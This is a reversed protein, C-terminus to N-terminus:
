VQVARGPGPVANGRACRTRSTTSRRQQKLQVLASKTRALDERLADIQHEAANHLRALEAAGKREAELQDQLARAVKDTAGQRKQAELLEAITHRAQELQMQTSRLATRREAPTLLAEEGAHDAAAHGAGSLDGLTRRRVARRHRQAPLAAPSSALPAM